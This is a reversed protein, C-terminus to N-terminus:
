SHSSPTIFEVMNMTSIQWCAMIIIMIIMITIMIITIISIISFTKIKSLLPYTDMTGGMGPTPCHCM